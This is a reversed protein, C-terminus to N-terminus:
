QQTVPYVAVSCGDLQLVPALPAIHLHRQMLSSVNSLYVSTYLPSVLLADSDCSRFSLTPEGSRPCTVCCMEPYPPLDKLPGSQRQFLNSPKMTSAPYIYNSLPHTFCNATPRLGKGIKVPPHAALFYKSVSAVQWLAGFSVGVGASTADQYASNIGLYCSTTTGTLRADQEQGSKRLLSCRAAICIGRRSEPRPSSAVFDQPPPLPACNLGQSTSHHVSPDAKSRRLPWRCILRTRCHLVFLGGDNYVLTSDRPYWGHQRYHSTIFSLQSQPTSTYPCVPCVVRNIIPAANAVSKYRPVRVAPLWITQCRVVVWVPRDVPYRRQCSAPGLNNLYDFGTLLSSYTTVHQHALFSRKAYNVHYSITLPQPKRRTYSQASTSISLLSCAAM